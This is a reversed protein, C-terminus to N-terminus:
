ARSTAPQRSCPRRQRHPLDRHRRRHHRPRRRRHLPLPPGRRFRVLRLRRRHCWSREQHRPPLSTASNCDTDWGSTNVIILSKRFDDDGHLLAHIILAHNPVWTATAATATTATLARRHPPPNAGTRNPPTGTASTTSSPPGIVSDRPIFTLAADILKQIDSEVFALAEMAAVVPRRLHSATTASAPPAALLTPPASPTAPLPPDHGLWRHLDALRDTGRRNQRQSRDFRERPRPYRTQPPPLRHARHLQRLRGM